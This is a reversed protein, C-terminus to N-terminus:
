WRTNDKFQLVDTNNSGGRSRPVVPVQDARYVATLCHISSVHIFVYTRCPIRVKFSGVKCEASLITAKLRPSSTNRTIQDAVHGAEVGCLASPLLVQFLLFVFCSQQGTAKHCIM